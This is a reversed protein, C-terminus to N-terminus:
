TLEEEIRALQTEFQQDINGFETEVFCGGPSVASDAVIDIAGSTLREPARIDLVQIQDGSEVAHILQAPSIEPINPLTM